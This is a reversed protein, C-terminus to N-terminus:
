MEAAAEDQILGVTCRTQERKRLHHLIGDYKVVLLGQGM